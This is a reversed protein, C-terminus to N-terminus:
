TRTPNRGQLLLTRQMQAGISSIQNCTAQPTQTQFNCVPKGRSSCTMQDQKSSGLKRWSFRPILHRWFTALPQLNCTNARNLLKTCLNMRRHDIDGILCLERRKKLLILLLPYRWNTPDDM